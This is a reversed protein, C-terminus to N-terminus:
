APQVSLRGFHACSGALAAPGLRHDMASILDARLRVVLFAGAAAIVLALLAVYWATMRARIPLRM